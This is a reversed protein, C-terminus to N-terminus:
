THSLWNHENKIEKLYREALTRDSPADGNIPKNSAEAKAPM